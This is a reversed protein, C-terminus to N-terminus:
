VIAIGFPVLAEVTESACDVTCDSWALTASSSVASELASLSARGVFAEVSSAACAVTVSSEVESAFAFACSVESSCSLQGALEDSVTVVATPPDLTGELLLAFLPESLLAFLPLESLPVGPDLVGNQFWLQYCPRFCVDGDGVGRSRRAIARRRRARGSSRDVLGRVARCREHAGDAQVTGRGAVVELVPRAGVVSLGGSRPTAPDPM